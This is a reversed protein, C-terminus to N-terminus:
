LRAPRSARHRGRPHKPRALHTNGVRRQSQHLASRARRRRRALQLRLRSQRARRAPGARARGADGALRHARPLHAARLARQVRRIEPDLLHCGAADGLGQRLAILGELSGTALTFVCRRRPYRRRVREALLHVAPDDSGVVVVLGREGPDPLLMTAVTFSEATAKYYKETYGGVKRQEALEVLGAKQLQLVHHRIWAPHKDFRAGLQTITAPRAM